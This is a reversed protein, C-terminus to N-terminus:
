DGRVGHTIDDESSVILEAPDEDTTRTGVSSERKPILRLQAIALWTLGVGLVFVGGFVTWFLDGGAVHIVPGAGICAAAWRPIAQARWLAAARLLFGLIAGLLFIPGVVQWLLAHDILETAEISASRNAAPALVSFEVAVSTVTAAGAISGIVLLASGSYALGAGRTRVLRLAGVVAPAALLFTLMRFVYQSDLLVTDHSMASLRANVDNEPYTPTLGPGLLWALALGLTSYATFRIRLTNTM